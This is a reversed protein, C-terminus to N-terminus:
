YVPNLTTLSHIFVAPYTTSQFFFLQFVSIFFDMAIPWQFTNLKNINKYQTVM